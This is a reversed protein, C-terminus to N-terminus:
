RAFNGGLKKNIDDRVNSRYLHTYKDTMKIDSHRLQEKIVKPNMNVLVLQSAYFHRLTHFGFTPLKAKELADTWERHYLNHRNIPGGNRNTFLLNFDNNELEVSQRAKHVRLKEILWDPIAVNGMSEDSKVGYFEGKQITREVSIWGKEFDIDGWKLALAESIRFGTYALTEILPRYFEDMKEILTDVDEATPIYIKTQPVKPKKLLRTPNKAIYNHDVAEQFVSKLVTVIKNITAPALEERQLFGVFEKCKELSVSRLPLSKPKLGKEKEEDTLQQQFYGTIWKLAATYTGLTTARISDKRLDLWKETAEEVSIKKPAVYVEDRVETKTRDLFAEAEKVRYFTKMHQLGFQDRYKLFQNRM